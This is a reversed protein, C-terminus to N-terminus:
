VGARSIGGKPRITSDRCVNITVLCPMPKTSAVTMRMSAGIVVLTSVSAWYRNETMGM